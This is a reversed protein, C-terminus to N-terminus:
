AQIHQHAAIQERTEFCLVFSVHRYVYIYIRIQYCLCFYSDLRVLLCVLLGNFLSNAIAGCPAYKLKPSRPTKKEANPMVKASVTATPKQRQYRFPECNASLEDDLKDGRNDRLGVLQYNDVSKIYRRSNQYFNDLAYYVFLNDVSTSISNTASGDRRTQRQRAASLQDSEVLDATALDDPESNAPGITEGFISLVHPRYQYYRRCTCVVSSHSRNSYADPTSRATLRDHCTTNQQNIDM